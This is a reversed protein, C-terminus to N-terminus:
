TVEPRMEAGSGGKESPGVRPRNDSVHEWSEVSVALVNLCKPTTAHGTAVLEGDVETPILQITTEVAAILKWCATMAKVRDDSLSVEQM